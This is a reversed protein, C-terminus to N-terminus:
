PLLEVTELMKGSNAHLRMVCEKIVDHMCITSSTCTVLIQSLKEFGALMVTTEVVYEQM